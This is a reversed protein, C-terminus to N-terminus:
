ERATFGRAVGELKWEGGNRTFFAIKRKLPRTRTGSCRYANSFIILAQTRGADFGAKSFTLYGQADVFTSDFGDWDPNETDGLAELFENEPVIRYVSPLDFKRDLRTSVNINKMILSDLTEQKLLDPWKEMLLVPNTSIVWSETMDEILILEYDTGYESVVLLSMLEYEHLDTDTGHSQVTEAGTDNGAVGDAKIQQSAASSIAVIVLWLIIYSRIASKMKEKRFYKTFYLIGGRVTGM